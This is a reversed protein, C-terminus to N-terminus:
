RDNRTGSASPSSAIEHSEKKAKAGRFSVESIANTISAHV